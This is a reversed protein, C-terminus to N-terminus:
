TYYDILSFRMRSYNCFPHKVPSSGMQYNEPISYNLSRVFSRVQRHTARLCTSM